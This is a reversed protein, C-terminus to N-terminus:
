VLFAILLVALLLVGVIIIGSNLFKDIRAHYKSRRGLVPEPRSQRNDNAAVSSDSDYLYDDDVAYSENMGYSEETIYAEDTLYPEDMEGYPYSDDEFDNHEYYNENARELLRNMQEKEHEEKSKFRM